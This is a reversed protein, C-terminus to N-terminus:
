PVRRTRRALITTMLVDYGVSAKGSAGKTVPPLWIATFGAQSFDAAQAATTGGRILSDEKRRCPCRCGASIFAKCFFAWPQTGSATNSAWPEPVFVVVSRPPRECSMQLLRLCFM